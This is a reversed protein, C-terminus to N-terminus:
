LIDENAGQVLKRDVLPPEALFIARALDFAGKLQDGIMQEPLAHNVLDEDLADRSAAVALM